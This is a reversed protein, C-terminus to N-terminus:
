SELTRNEGFKAVVCSDIDQRFYLCPIEIKKANTTM